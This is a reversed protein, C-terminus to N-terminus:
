GKPRVLEKFAPEDRLPELDPDRHLAAGFAMGQAFSDRLLDVAGRKDGLLAAICARGYTQAGFLRPGTLRRLEESVREAEDRRGLRAAACGLRSVYAVNAPAKAVLTRCVEHAMSWKEALLLADALGELSSTDGPASALRERYWAGARAGLDLSAQRQGHARLELGALLMLDGPTADSAAASLSEDVLRAVQEVRNLAALARMEWMVPERLDPNRARARRAEELERPYRGLMHLADCLHASWTAGLAHGPYPAPGFADYEAVTEQPRNSLKALFGIWLVTMPDRPAAQEAGRLHQLAEAYRHESYAVIADLWHRGFPPLQDRRASLAHLVAGVRAHEGAQDLLYAEYFLPTVFEPDLEVARQFHRLGQAGDAMFVEFGAIFERYADYRPPRQQIGMEHVGELKSALAGMVLERLSDIAGLPADRAGSVPDLAELLRGGAADLIRAQFGLRRGDLYYTGTVVTGAGTELALARVPDRAAGGPARGAPQAYLVSTSPVVDLGEVHSLGQTLWDSAMRGLPDLTADGTENEFVAVVVRRPSPRPARAPSRAQWWLASGAAVAVVVAAAAALWPWRRRAASHGGSPPRAAVSAGSTAAALGRLQYALDRANQFREEPDKELCHGVVSELGSPIDRGSSSLPPPEESLIAHMTEVTSKGRFARRGALMEYLISGLAFLDSRQDAPQGRVQEPAMYGATGLVIGTVTDAISLPEDGAPALIEPRTLKALGFDLVKVRGDKTIFLNEPKLDRHVIGKEHAAALGQAAQCAVEAAKRPPLPGHALRERLTEGELLEMVVFPSGEHEGIDHIVIVNPHSLAGAARAEQEFRLVRDRDGALASPIVKVAVDRALRTDRARYVEGMGGAGLPAVIRYPGLTTGPALM